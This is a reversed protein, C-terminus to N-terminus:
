TARGAGRRARDPRRRPARPLRRGHGAGADRASTPTPGGAPSCASAGGTRTPGARPAGTAEGTRARLRLAGRDRGRVQRPHRAAQAEVDAHAGRLRAAVRRAPDQGEEGAGRQQVGEDGRGRGARGGRGRGPARGPRRALHARHRAAQGVGPGGRRRARGVGVRVATQRRHRRGPRGAAGNKLAAELNAPSINKGGATIILEKKRDVIRLYGEDDMQGIDGTRLWGEADLAEATKEPDNLYGQFVHGGRAVVEGDEALKVESGPMARGVTGPKIRYPEWTLPGCNESMGYIESMPVGIAVFWELIEVPIPAAGTVAFKLADFGVMERVGRFAVDDLFDLTQQEEDSVGEWAKKLRLPLAAAVAEDFKQKKDPDAALAAQVGAYVKEFVRPVGFLIEPKVERAYAAIQSPDPCTTVEYGGSLALYHTNMREAIHAMPLYSIARFGLPEIELIPLYSEVTWVINAHSLMVGKPPGTTGSTYIVTALGDPEAIESAAALDGPEHDLVRSWPEVGDGAVAEDLVLIRELAPLDSRVKQFRELFGGDEVVALRAGSHGALYAVQEPSSSNYHSIPTAGRMVVAMDAVHFEPVNRMMLVVRDGPGVGVHELGVMARAVREGYERYTWERWADGDKWRLAVQDPHETVTDYFRSAITQGAARADIEERTVPEAAM